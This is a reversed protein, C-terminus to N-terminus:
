WLQGLTIIFDINFYICHEHRKRREDCDTNIDSTDEAKSLKERAREYTASYFVFLIENQVLLLFLLWLDDSFAIRFLSDIVYNNFIM